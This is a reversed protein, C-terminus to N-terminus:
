SSGRVFFPLRGIRAPLCWRRGRKNEDHNRPERARPNSRRRHLKGKVYNAAGGVVIYVAAAATETAAAAAETAAAAAVLLFSRRVRGAIFDKPPRASFQFGREKGSERRGKTKQEYERREGFLRIRVFFWCYSPRKWWKFAAATFSKINERREFSCRNKRGPSIPLKASM